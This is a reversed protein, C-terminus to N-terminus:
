PPTRKPGHNDPNYSPLGNEVEVFEVPFRVLTKLAWGGLPNM